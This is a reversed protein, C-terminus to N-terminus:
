PHREFLRKTDKSIKRELAGSLDCKCRRAFRVLLFMIDGLEDHVADQFDAQLLMAETEEPSKFRFLQLLEASETVIGIALDKPNHVKDWGRAAAYTAALRELDRLTNSEDNMGIDVYSPSNLLPLTSVLWTRWGSNHQDRSQTGFCTIWFGYDSCSSPTM